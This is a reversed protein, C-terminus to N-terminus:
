KVWYVCGFVKETYEAMLELKARLHPFSCVYEYATPIGGHSAPDYYEDTVYEILTARDEMPTVASYIRAFYVKDAPNEGDYPILYQFLSDNAYYNDFDYCYTFDEPNLTDWESFVNSYEDCIRCEVAHWMEHNIMTTDYQVMGACIEITYWAGQAYSVGGPSFEGGNNQLDGVLLIRLGGEGEPNVFHGFFGEPYTSLARDIVNLTRDLTERRESLPDGDPNEEYSVREYTGDPAANLVEDGLLLRVGYKKEIRDAHERQALFDDSLVYTTKVDSAGAHLDIPELKEGFETLGPAILFLETGSEDTIEPDSPDRNVAAAFRGCGDLYVASVDYAGDFEEIVASILGSEVDLLRCELDFGFMDEGVGVPIYSIGFAYRSLPSIRLVMEDPLVYAFPEKGSRSAAFVRSRSGIYEGADDFVGESSTLILANESFSAQASEELPLDTRSGDNLSVLKYKRGSGENAATVEIVIERSTPDFASVYTAWPASYLVTVDGTDPDVGTIERSDCLYILDDEPVYEANVSASEFSRLAKGDPSLILLTNNDMDQAAIEGNERVGIISVAYPLTFMFEATGASFDVMYLRQANEPDVASPGDAWDSYPHTVVAARAYGAPIMTNVAGELDACDIRSIAADPLEPLPTTTTDPAATGTDDPGGDVREVGCGSFALLLTLACLVTCILKRPM